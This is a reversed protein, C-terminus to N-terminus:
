WGFWGGAFGVLRREKGDARRIPPDARITNRSRKMAKKEETEQQPHFDFIRGTLKELRRGNM